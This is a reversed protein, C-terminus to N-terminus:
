SAANSSQDKQRSRSAKLILSLGFLVHLLVLCRVFTHKPVIDGYGVTTVTIFSFYIFDLIDGNGGQSGPIEFCGHGTQNVLFYVGAMGFSFAIYCLLAQRASLFSKERFITWPCRFVAGFILIYAIVVSISEHADLSGSLHVGISTLPGILLVVAVTVLLSILYRAM